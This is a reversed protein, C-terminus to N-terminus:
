ADASLTRGPALFLLVWGIIFFLGGVPTIPGLLSAPAAVVESLSLLYLSGCFLLIGVAWCASALRLRKQNIGPVSWLAVALGLAFVHYFHYRVGTNFTELQAPGVLERLGHAGFAGIAVALAGLAATLRLLNKM